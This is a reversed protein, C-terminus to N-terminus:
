LKIFIKRQYLVMVPLLCVGVFLISYVLSVFGPSGISAPLLLFLWRQLTIGSPLRIAGLVIALVESLVYATLANSGFALWPLLSKRFWTSRESDQDLTAHLFALLVLDLGANFLVFSSTWLRKNLPFTLSWCLGGARAALGFVAMWATRKRISSAARLWIVSMIGFLTTAIAPLTSLLGEPDYYGHHYLHAAPVLTRDLWAALNGHPDLFPVDVMPRGYGPVPVFRLLLWYGVLLLVTAVVCGRVRGYLFLISAALYCLAIRQLVGYFRLDRWAFSPLANLILGIVAILLARRGVQALISGRSVGSALRKQLAIAISAGVMFLFLPFVIDAVSCGNWVSHRLEVYSTRGDGANNVLIMLAVTAGRLVDLSIMRRQTV